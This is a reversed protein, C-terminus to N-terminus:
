YNPPNNSGHDQYEWTGTDFIGHITPDGVVEGLRTDTTMEFYAYETDPLNAARPGVNKAEVFHINNGGTFDRQDIGLTLHDGQPYDVDIYATRTDWPENALIGALLASKESCDGLKEHLVIIPPCEEQIPTGYPIAQQILDGLAELREVDDTLNIGTIAADTKRALERLHSVRTAYHCEWRHEHNYRWGQSANRYKSVFSKNVTTSVGFVEGNINVRSVLFVTRRNGNDEHVMVGDYTEPTKTIHFEKESDYYNQVNIAPDNFWRVGEEHEIGVFQHRKFLYEADDGLHSDTITFESLSGSDTPLRVTSIDFTVTHEDYTPDGESADLTQTTTQFDGNADRIYLTFDLDRRVKASFKLRATNGDVSVDIFRDDPHIVSIRNLDNVTGRFKPLEWLSFEGATETRFHTPPNNPPETVDDEPDDNGGPATIPGDDIGDNPQRPELGGDSCGALGTALGVGALGLFRRRTTPLTNDSDM